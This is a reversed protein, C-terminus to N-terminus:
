NHEDIVYLESSGKRQATSSFLSLLLMILFINLRDCGDDHFGRLKIKKKNTLKSNFKKKYVKIENQKTQNLKILLKQTKNAM